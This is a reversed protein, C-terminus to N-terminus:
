PYFFLVMIGMIRFLNGVPEILSKRYRKTVFSASLYYLGLGISSTFIVFLSAGALSPLSLIYDIM